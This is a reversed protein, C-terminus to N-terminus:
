EQDVLQPYISNLHDYITQAIVNQAHKTPHPIGATDHFDSKTLGLFLDPM